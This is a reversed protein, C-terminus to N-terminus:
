GVEITPGPKDWILKKRLESEGSTHTSEINHMSTQKLIEYKHKLKNTEFATQNTAKRHFTESHESQGLSHKNREERSFNFSATQRLQRREPDKQLDKNTIQANIYQYYFYDSM